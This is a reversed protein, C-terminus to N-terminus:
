RALFMGSKPFINENPLGELAEISVFVADIPLEQALESRFNAFQEVREDLISFLREERVLLGKEKLINELGAQNYRKQTEELGPLAALREDLSDM